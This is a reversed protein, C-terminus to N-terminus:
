APIKKSDAYPMLAYGTSAMLGGIVVHVRDKEVLKRVKTLAVAPKAESDESILVIKRGAGKWGQETLFVQLGSLMDRGTQAAHGTLPAFFGIKIPGKALSSSPMAAIGIVLAGIVSFLFIKKMIGGGEKM